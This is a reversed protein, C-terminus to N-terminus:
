VQSSVNAALRATVEGVSLRGLRSVLELYQIVTGASWRSPEVIVTQGDQSVTQRALPFKLM